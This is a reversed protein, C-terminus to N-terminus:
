VVCQVKASVLCFRAFKLKDLRQRHATNGSKLLAHKQKLLYTLLYFHHKVEVSVM